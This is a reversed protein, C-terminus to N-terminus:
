DPKTPKYDVAWVPLPEGHERLVKLADEALRQANESTKVAQLTQEDCKRRAEVLEQSMTSIREHMEHIEKMKAEYAARSERALRIMQDSSSKAEALEQKRQKSEEVFLNCRRTTDEASEKLSLFFRRLVEDPDKIETKDGKTISIQSAWLAMAQKAVQRIFRRQKAPAEALAAELCFHFSIM